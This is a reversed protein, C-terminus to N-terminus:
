NLFLNFAKFVNNFLASYVMGLSFSYKQKWPKFDQKSLFLPPSLTVMVLWPQPTSPTRKLQFPLSVGGKEGRGKEERHNL